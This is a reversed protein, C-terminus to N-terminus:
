AHAELTHRMDIVVTCLPALKAMAADAHHVCMALSGGTRLEFHVFAVAVGCTDCLRADM